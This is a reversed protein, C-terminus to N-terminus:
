KVERQIDHTVFILNRQKPNCSFRKVRASWDEDAVNSRKDRRTNKKQYSSLINKSELDERYSKAQIFGDSKNWAHCNGGM